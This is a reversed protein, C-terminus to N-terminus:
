TRAEEFVGALWMCLAWVGVLTAALAATAWASSLCVGSALMLSTWGLTGIVRRRAKKMKKKVM